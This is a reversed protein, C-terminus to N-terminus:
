QCGYNIGKFYYELEEVGHSVLYIGNNDLINRQRKQQGKSLRGGKGRKIEIEFHQGSSTLGIIDGGNKIGYSAYYGRGTLDGAGVNNRSCYIGHQKLWALCEKLVESEPLDPVDVVPHTPVSGDKAGSRKVPKGEKLCEYATYCDAIKEAKTRRKM